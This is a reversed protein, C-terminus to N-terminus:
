LPEHSVQAVVLEGQGIASGHLATGSDGIVRVDEMLELPIGNLKVVTGKPLIDDKTETNMPPMVLVNGGKIKRHRVFVAFFFLTAYFNLASAV